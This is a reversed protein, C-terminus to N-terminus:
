TNNIIELQQECIGKRKITGISNVFGAKTSHKYLRFQATVDRSINTNSLLTELRLEKIFNPTVATRRKIHINVSLAQQNTVFTDSM